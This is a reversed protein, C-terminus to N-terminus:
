APLVPLGPDLGAVRGASTVLEVVPSQPRLTIIVQKVIVPRAQHDTHAPYWPGPCDRANTNRPNDTLMVRTGPTIRDARVKRVIPAPPGSTRIRPRVPRHRPAVAPRTLQSLRAEGPYVQADPARLVDASRGCWVRIRWDQDAPDADAAFDLAVQHPTDDPHYAEVTQAARPARWNGDSDKFELVATFQATM